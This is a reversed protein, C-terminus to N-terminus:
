GDSGSVSFAGRNSAGHPPDAFVFVEYDGAADPAAFSHTYHQEGGAAINTSMPIQDKVVPSHDPGQVEFVIHEDGGTESDGTNSITCSVNVQDGAAVSEEHVVLHSTSLDAPM